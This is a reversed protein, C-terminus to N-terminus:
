QDRSPAKPIADSKLNHTAQRRRTGFSSALKLYNSVDGDIFFIYDFEKRAAPAKLSYEPNPHITKLLVESFMVVYPNGEAANPFLDGLIKLFMVGLSYIDWSYKHKMIYDFIESFEKGIFSSFYQNMLQRYSDVFEPSFITLAKNESTCQRAVEAVDNDTLPKTAVHLCYNLIHVSPAWIYYDPVYAYFYKRLSELDEVMNLKEVPISIGFDILRPQGNGKSFLVNDLKIDLHIVEAEELKEVANLLHRYTESLILVVERADSREVLKVFDIGEMYPIDMAIYDQTKKANAIVDCAMIDPSNLNRLNIPCENIVPLFYLKYMPLKKIIKGVVIENEVNFDKKQIKTVVSSDAQMNDCRVGPYFVCGFGGQSLLKSM